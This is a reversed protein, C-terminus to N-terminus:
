LFIPFNDFLNKSVADADSTDITLKTAFKEFKRFGSKAVTVVSLCKVVKATYKGAVYGIRYLDIDVEM